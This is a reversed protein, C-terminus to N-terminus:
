IEITVSQRTLLACANSSIITFYSQFCYIAECEIHYHIILFTEICILLTRQNSRPVSKTRLYQLHIIIQSIHILLLTKVFLHTYFTCM